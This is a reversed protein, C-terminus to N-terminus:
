IENKKPNLYLDSRCLLLKKLCKKKKSNQVRIIGRNPKVDKSLKNVYTCSVSNSFIATPVMYVESNKM